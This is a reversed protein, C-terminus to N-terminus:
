LMIFVSVPVSHTQIDNRIKVEGHFTMSFVFKGSFLVIFYEALFLQQQQKYPEKMM